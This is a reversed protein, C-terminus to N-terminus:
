WLLPCLVVTETATFLNYFASDADGIMAVGCSAVRLGLWM